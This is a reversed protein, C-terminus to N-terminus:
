SQMMCPIKIFLWKNLVLMKQLIDSKTVKVCACVCVVM